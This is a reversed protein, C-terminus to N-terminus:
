GVKKKEDALQLSLADALSSAGIRFRSPTLWEKGLINETLRLYKVANEANSIGGSPKIGTKAGSAKIALLMSAVAEVTAGVPIKGTSTKIFDVGSDIAITSAKQINENSVLEGTELIIKLTIRDCIKRFASSRFLM